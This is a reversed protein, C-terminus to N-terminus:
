KAPKINYGCIRWAGDKELMATVNEFAKPMGEFVTKFVMVVYEGKIAEPLDVMYKKAALTRSKVPGLPVRNYVLRADWKDKPVTWKFYAASADWSDAFRGADVLALWATAATAAAKEAEEHQAWAPSWGLLCAVVVAGAAV